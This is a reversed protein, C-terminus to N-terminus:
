RGGGPVVTVHLDDLDGFKLATSRDIGDKRRQLYIKYMMSLLYKAENTFKDM